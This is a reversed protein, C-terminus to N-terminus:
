IKAESRTMRIRALELVMALQEDITLNTNDILVADAAQVLPSDTRTSDIHDRQQLNTRVEEFSLDLGSSKADYMRRYVRTELNATLFIKLISDPFVVTGIDRGDMVVNHHRAYSQQLVVLQKRVEPMAAVESVHDNVERSRLLDTIDQGNVLLKDQQQPMYEFEISVSELISVSPELDFSIGNQLFFWTMGRYMAGSDIYLFGLQDALGRALTSKGCAAYGDVCIQYTPM